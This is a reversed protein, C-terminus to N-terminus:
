PQDDSKGLGRERELEELVVIEDGHRREAQEEGTRRGAEMRPDAMRPGQNEHEDNGQPKGGSAGHFLAVDGPDGRVQPLAVDVHINRAVQLPLDGRLVRDVHYVPLRDNVKEGLRM